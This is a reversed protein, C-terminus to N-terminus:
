DGICRQAIILFGPFFHKACRALGFRDATAAGAKAIKYRVGYQRKVEPSVMDFLQVVNSFFYKLAGPSGVPVYFLPIGEHRPLAAYIWVSGFGAKKLHKEYGFIGYPGGSGGILREVSFRNGVSFKAVGGPRLHGLMMKSIEGFSPESGDIWETGSLAVLDFGDAMMRPLREDRCFIPRLNGAALQSRRLDLLEVCDMCNDVAVVEAYARALAIPVSGLGCGVALARDRGGGAVLYTWDAVREDEMIPEGAMVKEMTYRFYAREWGDQRASDLIMRFEGKQKEDHRNM